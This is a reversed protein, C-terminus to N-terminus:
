GGAPRTVRVFWELTKLPVEGVVIVEHGDIVRGVAKAAGVRSAGSLRKGTGSPQVYVSVTALGDSFIFHEMVGGDVAAPRRRHVNLQFGPPLDAFEWAAPALRERSLDRVADVQAVQMATLDQEIPTIAHDIRLEVFMMQAVVQKNGDIMVSRLPLGTEQDVYLRYGFRLDDRPEISIQQAERGAVRGPELIQLQYWRDLEESSVASLPSYSRGLARRGVNIHQKSGSVLCAVAQDSRIIERPNGTLSVVREKESGGSVRHVIYMADLSDGSQVVFRGEYDLQRVAENMRDLLAHADPAEPQGAAVVASLLAGTILLSCHWRRKAPAM